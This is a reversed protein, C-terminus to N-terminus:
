ALPRLVNRVEHAVKEHAERRFFSLADAGDRGVRESEEVCMWPGAIHALEFLQLRFHNAERDRTIASLHRLDRAPQPNAARRKVPLQVVETKAAFRIGGIFVHRAPSVPPWNRAHSPSPANDYTSKTLVKSDN